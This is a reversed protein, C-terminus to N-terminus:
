ARLTLSPARELRRLLASLSFAILTSKMGSLMAGIEPRRNCRALDSDARVYADLTGGM